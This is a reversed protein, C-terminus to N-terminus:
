LCARHMAPVTPQEDHFDARPMFPALEARDVYLESAAHPESDSIRVECTDFTSVEGFERLEAVLCALAASMDVEWSISPVEGLERMEAGLLVLGVSKAPKGTNNYHELSRQIMTLLVGPAELPLTLDLGAFKYVRSGTKSEVAAAQAANVRTLRAEPIPLEAAAGGERIAPGRSATNWGVAVFAVALAEEQAADSRPAM